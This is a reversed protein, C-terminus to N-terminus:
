LRLGAGVKKLIWYFLATAIVGVVAAYWFGNPTDLFPLDHTNMGFISAVLSGPLLLATLISLARLSRNTDDALRAAVEEQLLRARDQVTQIDHDLSELRAALRGAAIHLTPPATENPRGDWKRMVNALSYLQRHIRVMTRRVEVVRLRENTARDDVVDDEAADLEDTMVAIRRAVADCFRDIITEILAGAVPVNLGGQLARRIEDVSRLPRRRGSIVLRDTLAFRLRGIQNTEEGLEGHFDAIVGYVVHDAAHLGLTDDLALFPKRAQEPLPEFSGIWEQALRDTLNFHLWLWGDEAALAATVEGPQLPEPPYGERFRYAWILGAVAEPVFFNGPLRARDNTLDDM